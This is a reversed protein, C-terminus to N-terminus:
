KICHVTDTNHHVSMRETILLYLTNGYWSTSVTDNILSVSLSGATCIYMYM